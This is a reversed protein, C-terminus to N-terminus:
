KGFRVFAFIGNRKLDAGIIELDGTMRSANEEELELDSRFIGVGLGISRTVRFEASAELETFSGKYDDYSADFLKILGNLYFKNGLRVRGDLGIVPMPISM